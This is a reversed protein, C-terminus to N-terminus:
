KSYRLSVESKDFVTPNMLVQGHFVAYEMSVRCRGTFM